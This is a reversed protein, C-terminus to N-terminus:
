YKTNFNKFLDNIRAILNNFHILYDSGTMRNELYMQRLGQYQSRIVSAYRREEEKVNKHLSINLLTEEMLGPMIVQNQWVSKQTEFHEIPDYIYIDYRSIAKLLMERHLSLDFNQRKLERIQQNAESIIAELRLKEHGKEISLNSKMEEGHRIQADLYNIKEKLKNNEEQSVTFSTIARKLDNMASPLDKDIKDVAININNIHKHYFYVSCAVGILILLFYGGADAIEGEKCSTCTLIFYLLFINRM